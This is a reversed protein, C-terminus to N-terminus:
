SYKVKVNVHYTFIKKDYEDGPQCLSLIIYLVTLESSSEGGGVWWDDLASQSLIGRQPRNSCM